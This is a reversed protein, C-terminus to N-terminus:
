TGNGDGLAAGPQYQLVAYATMDDVEFRQAFATVLGAVDRASRDGLLIAVQEAADLLVEQDQSYDVVHCVIRDPAGARREVTMVAPERAVGDARRLVLHTAFKSSLATTVAATLDLQGRRPQHVYRQVAELFSEGVITRAVPCASVTSRGADIVVRGVPLPSRRGRWSGADVAM